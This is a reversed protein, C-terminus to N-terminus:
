PRRSRVRQLVDDRAVAVFNRDIEQRDPDIHEVERIGDGRVHFFRYGHGSLIEDVEEYPGDPLCEVLVTPHHSELTSSMGRLVVHEHGEVDMKVLDVADVSALEQDVTSARVSILEGLKGRFGEPSLSSMTGLEGTSNFSATGVHDSLAIERVECRATWGNDRITQALHRALEPVPEFAVVHCRPNAVCAVFAYTGLNAGIDVVTSAGMALSCWLPMSEPEDSAVGLWQLQRRRPEPGRISFDPYGDIWTRAPDAAPLRKWAWPPLAVRRSLARLAAQVPANVMLTRVVARGLDVLKM